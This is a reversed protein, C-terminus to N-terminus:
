QFLHINKECMTSNLYHLVLGLIGTVDLSCWRPRFVGMTNVNDRPIPTKYFKQTFGASLILKFTEVDFGMTTIYTCDNRSHYLAQWPTNIHPNPLLQPRCLYLQSTLHNWICALQSEEAGARILTVAVAQMARDHDDEVEEENTQQTEYSWVLTSDM